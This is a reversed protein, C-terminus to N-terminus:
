YITYLLKYKKGNPHTIQTSLSRANTIKVFGIMAKLKKNAAALFVKDTFETYISANCGESIDLVQIEESM